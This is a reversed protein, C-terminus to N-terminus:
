MQVNRSPEEGCRFAALRHIYLDTATWEQLVPLHLCVPASPYFRLHLGEWDKQFSPNMLSTMSLQGSLLLRHFVSMDLLYLPHAGLAPLFDNFRFQCATGTRLPTGPFIPIAGMGPDDIFLKSLLLFFRRFVSEKKKWHCLIDVKGAIILFM